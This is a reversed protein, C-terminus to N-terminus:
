INPYNFVYINRLPVGENQIINSRNQINTLFCIPLITMKYNQLNNLFKLSESFTAQSELYFYNSRFKNGVNNSSKTFLNNIKNKKLKFSLPDIATYYKEEGRNISVLDNMNTNNNQSINTITKKDSNKLSCISEAEKKSIPRLENILLSSEKSVRELLLSFDLLQSKKAVLEDLNTPRYKQHFPRHSSSM